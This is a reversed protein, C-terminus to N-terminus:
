AGHEQIQIRSNVIDGDPDTSLIKAEFAGSEDILRQINDLVSISPASLKIDIVGARFSIAEIRADQNQQLARSLHELSDLLIESSATVGTRSRLSAVAGAPDRVDTAGPVIQRYEALFQGRLESELIGLKYYDVYKATLLTAGFALLLIAAYKWPRLLGAYEAKAGYEGQLLNIGAGTGVTVALRPLIGDPLIKVDLSDFELRMSAWEHSFKEEEDSECYVLVHRPPANSDADDDSDSPAIDLAGIAKLGDRPGLGQLVIDTEAGDNIFLQSDALLVSITGPIRALGQNEAIISSAVIDADSLAKMWGDLKDRRVVSVPVRGDGTRPGAAFHLNEIDDALFEELAFPLAAQIRNKSKLPMDVATSLVDVGPVLVIIKREGVDTAADALPGVVPPSLRAGSDDVAIWQALDEMREGLRIVLFEAM